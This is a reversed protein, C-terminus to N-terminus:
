IGVACDLCGDIVDGCPLCGSGATNLYEPDELSTDCQTCSNGQLFYQGGNLSKSCGICRTGEDAIECSACGEIADQCPVCKEQSLIYQEGDVRGGCKTCKGM